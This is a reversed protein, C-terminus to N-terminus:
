GGGGGCAAGGGGRDGGYGGGGRDGGSSGFGGGGGRRWASDGESRSPEYGDRDRDGRGSNRQFSGDDGASIAGSYVDM